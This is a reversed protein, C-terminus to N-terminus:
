PAGKSRGIDAVAGSTLAKVAEEAAVRKRAAEAFGRSVAKAPEPLRNWAALAEGIAGRGLAADIRGILAAPDDGPAEGVPRVRVVRSASAKLRELWGQDGEPDQTADFAARGEATWLLAIARTTPVGTKAVTQLPAIKAAEAGLGAAAALAADFPAGQEIAQAITQAVVALGTAESRRALAAVPAERALAETKTARAEAEAAALRQDLGQLRTELPRLDVPPSAPRASAELARNAAQVAAKASEEAAIAATEVAAIRTALAQTEAPAPAPVSAGAEPAPRAALAQRLGQELGEVRKVLDGMPATPAPAPAPAVVPRRELATLRQEFAALQEPSLAAPAAPPVSPRARLSAVEARLDAVAGSSQQAEIAGFLGAGLGLVGLLAGALPLSAAVSQPPWPRPAPDAAAAPEPAPDLAPEPTQQPATEPAPEPTSAPAPEPAADAPVAVAEGEIVEPVRNSRPRKRRGLDDLGDNEGAAM